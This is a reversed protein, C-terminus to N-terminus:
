EELILTKVGNIECSFAIHENGSYLTPEEVFTYVDDNFLVLNNKKQNKEGNVASFYKIGDINNQRCIDAIFRTIAYEPKFYGKHNKDHKELEGSLLLGALLLPYEGLSGIKTYDTLDLVKACNVEVKQIWCIVQFDGENIEEACVLDSNGLYLVPHGYHNFRGEPTIDPSPKGMDKQSYNKSPDKLRRARYWTEKKIKKLKTNKIANEIEKGILHKLGLMPYEKIYDLFDKIKHKIAQNIENKMKQLNRKSPYGMNISVFSDLSIKNGCEPCRIEKAIQEHYEIPIELNFLLSQFCVKKENYRLFNYSIEDLKTLEKDCCSLYDAILDWYESPIKSKKYHHLNLIAM